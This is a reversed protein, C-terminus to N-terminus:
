WGTVGLAIGNFAFGLADSGLECLRDSAKDPDSKLLSILSKDDSESNRCRDVCREHIREELDWSDLKERIM